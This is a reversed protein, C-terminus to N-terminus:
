ALVKAFEIEKEVDSTNSNYIEDLKSIMEINMQRFQPYCNLDVKM